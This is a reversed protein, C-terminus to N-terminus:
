KDGRNRLPSARDMVLRVKRREVEVPSGDIREPSSSKSHAADTEDRGEELRIISEAFSLVVEVASSSRSSRRVLVDHLLLNGLGLELLNDTEPVHLAPL